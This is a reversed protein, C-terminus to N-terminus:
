LIVEVDKPWSFTARRGNHVHGQSIREPTLIYVASVHAATHQHLLCGSEADEIITKGKLM